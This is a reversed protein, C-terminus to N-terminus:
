ISLQLATYVGGQSRKSKLKLKYVNRNFERGGIVPDRSYNPQDLFEKKIYSVGFQVVRNVLFQWLIRNQTM